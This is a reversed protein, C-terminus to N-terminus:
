KILLTLDTHYNVCRYEVRNKRLESSIVELVTSIEAVFHKCYFWLRSRVGLNNCNM